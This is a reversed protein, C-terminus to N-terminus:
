RGAEKKLDLRFHIWDRKKKFGLRLAVPALAESKDTISLHIVEKGLRRFWSSGVGIIPILAEEEGPILLLPHVEGVREKRLTFLTACVAPGRPSVATLERVRIGFLRGIRRLKYQRGHWEEPGATDGRLRRRVRVEHQPPPVVPLSREYVTTRGYPTFGLKEILHEGAKNLPSAHVKKYGAKQLRSIAEEILRYSIGNGRFEPRVYVGTLSPEKRGIVTLCGVPEGGKRALLAFAEHGTLRKVLWLPLGGWLLLARLIRALRDLDTGLETLETAFGARILGIYRPIDKRTLTDIGIEM